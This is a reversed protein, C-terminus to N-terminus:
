PIVKGSQTTKIIIPKRKPAPPATITVVVTMPTPAAADIVRAGPPATQGPLLQVYQIAQQISVPTGQPASTGQQLDATIPVSTQPPTVITAALASLAALGGAGLALRMARADPKAKPSHAKVPGRVVRPEQM